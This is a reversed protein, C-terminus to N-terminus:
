PSLLASAGWWGSNWATLRHRRSDLPIMLANWPLLIASAPVSLRRGLSQEGLAAPTLLPQLTAAGAAAAQLQAMLGAPARSTHAPTVGRAVAQRFGVAPWRLSCITLRLALWPHLLPM